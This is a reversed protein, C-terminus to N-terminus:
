DPEEEQHILLQWSHRCFRHGAVEQDGFAPWAHAHRWSLTFHEILALKSASRCL